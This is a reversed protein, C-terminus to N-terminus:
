CIKFILKTLSISLNFCSNFKGKSFLKISFWSFDSFLFASFFLTFLILVFFRFSFSFFLSIISINDSFLSSGCLFELIEFKLSFAFLKFLLICFFAFIFVFM